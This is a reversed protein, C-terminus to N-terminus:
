QHLMPLATVVLTLQVFAMISARLWSYSGRVMVITCRQQATADTFFCGVMMYYFEDSDGKVLDCLNDCIAQDL